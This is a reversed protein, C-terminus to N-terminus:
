GEGLFRYYKRRFFCAIVVVIFNVIKSLVEFSFFTIGTDYPKNLRANQGGLDFLFENIDNLVHYHFM